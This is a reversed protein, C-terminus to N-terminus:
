VFTSLDDDDVFWGFANLKKSDEETIGAEILADVGCGYIQDHQAAEVGSNPLYKAIINLGALTDCLETTSIPTDEEMIEEFREKKM